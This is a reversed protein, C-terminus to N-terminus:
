LSGMNFLLGKASEQHIKKGANDTVLPFYLIAFQM